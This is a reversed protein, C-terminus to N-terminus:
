YKLTNLHTFPKTTKAKLVNQADAHIEFTLAINSKKILLSYM